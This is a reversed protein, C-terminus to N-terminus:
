DNNIVGEIMGEIEIDTYGSLQIANVECVPLCMGCGKCLERDIEIYGKM